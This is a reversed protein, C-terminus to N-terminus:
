SRAAPLGREGDGAMSRRVTYGLMRLTHTIHDNVRREEEATMGLRVSSLTRSIASKQLVGDEIQASYELDCFEFIRKVM